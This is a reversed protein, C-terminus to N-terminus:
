FAPTGNMVTCASSHTHTHTHTHTETYTVICTYVSFRYTFTHKHILRNPSFKDMLFLLTHTNMLFVYFMM